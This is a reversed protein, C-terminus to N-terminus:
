SVTELFASFSARSGEKVRVLQLYGQTKFNCVWLRISPIASDFIKSNRLNWIEWATILFVEMPFQLSSQSLTHFVKDCIDVDSSWTLGLKQWCAVAFDCEFFLHLIDEEIDRDCLVCFATSQINFHRRLLMNQTNLRDVILLWAFFKIRSTCRSTWMKNFIPHADLNNFVMQYYKSSSYSGNGWIFTWVDKASPDFPVQGIFDELELLEDYAQM